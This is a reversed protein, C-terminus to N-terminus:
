TLRRTRATVVFGVVKAGEGYGTQALRFKFYKGQGQFEAVRTTILAGEGSWSDVDWVAVDWLSVSGPTLNITQGTTSTESVNTLMTIDMNWDGVALQQIYFRKLSKENMGHGFSLSPSDYLSAIEYGDDHSGTAWRQLTGQNSSAFYVRGDDTSGDWTAFASAHVGIIKGFVGLELDYFLAESNSSGGSPTYSIFYKNDWITAAPSTKNAWNDILSNVVKNSINRTNSGDFLILGEDSLFVLIDNWEVLTRKDRMGLEHTINRLEFNAPSSGYVAWIARRQFVYLVNNLSYIGTIKDGEGSDVIIAGANNSTDWDNFHDDNTSIDLVSFRLTNGEATWIRNTHNAISTPIPRVLSGPATSSTLLGQVEGWPSITYSQGGLTSGQYTVEVELSTDNTVQTIRYWKGDPLKIFEGAVANTVTNWSTGSGTVTADGNTATLTGTTYNVNTSGRYKQIYNTGDVVLLTNDAVTYDIFNAATLSVGSGLTIQTMAGTSDDGVYLSTGFKSIMQKIGSDNYYRILGTSGTSGGTYVNFKLDTTAVAAWALGSDTSSYAAGSAYDNGTFHVLVTNVTQTTTQVIFPKLVVAYETTAALTYPVRFRFSYETESAGSVLLIQGDVLEASPGTSGSWLEAQMYQEEGATNMELYFDCQVIDAQVGVQFTQAVYDSVADITLTGTSAGTNAEDSTAGVPDGNYRLYGKRTELNGAVDFLFNYESPSQNAELKTEHVDAVLGGILGFQEIPTEPQARFTQKQFFSLPM